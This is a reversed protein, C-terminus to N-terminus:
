FGFDLECHKYDEYLKDIIYKNYIRAIISVNKSGYQNGRYFYDEHKNAIQLKCM